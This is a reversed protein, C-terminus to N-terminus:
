LAGPRLAPLWDPARPLDESAALAVDLARDSHCIPGAIGKPAAIESFRVGAVDRLWFLPRADGQAARAEEGAARVRRFRLGEIELGDVHRAFLLKAPLAGFMGVEPYLAECEPPVLEAIAAARAIPMWGGGREGADDSEAVLEIDSLSVREIRHDPIGSVIIPFGFRDCRLKEVTVDAFERVAAGPPASLRRGLRLFLPSDQINSLTVNRIDVRTLPGGDVALLPIGLGNSIVCDEILIDEFGWCSETGLKIRAKMGDAAGIPVRRGDHLSGPAFGGTVFCRRISVKRTPQCRGLAASAKLAISDDHPTNLVLDELVVNECCDIDIGDRAVDILLRAARLNQVGSALVGFHASGTLSFGELAVNRCDKLAIVKDAVGQTRSSPTSGEGRSMGDGCLLGPGRITVDSVGVGCIMSNHWHNHGYDQYAAWPNPEVPDYRGPSAARLVAGRELALTVGSKLHLTHCLYDGAPVRVAGGGKGAVLEIARNIAHTDLVHGNGIAGCSRIDLASADAPASDEAAAARGTLAILFSQLLAAQLLERRTPRAGLMARGPM